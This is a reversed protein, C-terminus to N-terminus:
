PNVPCCHFFINSTKFELFDNWSSILVWNDNFINNEASLFYSIIEKEDKQIEIM